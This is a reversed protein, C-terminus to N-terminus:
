DTIFILGPCERRLFADVKDQAVQRAAVRLQVLDEEYDEEDRDLGSVDFHQIGSEVRSSRPPDAKYGYGHLEPQHPNGYGGLFADVIGILTGDALRREYQPPYHGNPQWPLVLKKLRQRVELVNELTADEGLLGDILDAADITFKTM